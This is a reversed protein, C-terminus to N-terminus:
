KKVNFEFELKGEVLRLSASFQKGSKAKFGKIESTKGNTCLDKIYKETLKKGLLREPFTQKCGNKYDSCGYFNKRLGIKGVKCTPCTVIDKAIPKTFQEAEITLTNIKNPVEAILQNIFKGISEIFHKASGEGRGIKKLYIEWKATMSPSSLLTGEIARCLLEGKPTISVINRKVEIFEHKKITEIIGSRTAETGIGEISKLVEIEEEDEVSKGCTKMMTILQGETYPKPPMTTGEVISVKSQVIEGQFVVPLVEERAQLGKDGTFLEKWGKVLETKGISKFEINKVNTLIMKEDYEYDLHFMALTTNLIEFYINREDAAMSQLAKETPVKKTPIIAYHEGVNSGDVYRKNHGRSIPAFSKGILQQYKPLADSLYDYENHTILQSDTRPYSVLKKEYLSQTLKLVHAPSYKWRKNATAQLTSLAHLRPPQIRKTKNTVNSIQGTDMPQIGHQMLLQEAEARVNTKIKAKGKYVGNQAKFVGEIEYFNEPKFNNIEQLRKYILYVTPSQVRGISISGKFGKQQLLLTYLRSCNMGVLWDSIQRTKAEQYMLLDRENSQMNQFGKRIEDVELSNIWLRKVPKKVKSMKYISYFINSGEREADCANYIMTVQPDNFVRKVANFQTYTKSSVKDEYKDLIIPLSVLSWKEWEKKYEKPQKLEVLHGIGWSIIAGEPFTPCPELEIFTKEKQKIKFAEAYARAQSPKEALIAIKGM